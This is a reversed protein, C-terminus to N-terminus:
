LDFYITANTAGFKIGYASMAEIQAQMDARFHIEVLNTCGGFIANYSATGFANNDVSVLNPFYEKTLGVCDTFMSSCVYNGTISEVSELGTALLGRKAYFMNQCAYAGSIKKLKKLGTSTLSSSYGSFAKACAEPGNIEELNHLDVEKVTANECVAYIASSGSIKKLDPCLFRIGATYYFFKYRLGVSIETVGVANFVVEHNSAPGLVGNSDVTGVFDDISLGFKKKDIIQPVVPAVEQEGIYMKAM